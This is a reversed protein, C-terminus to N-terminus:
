GLLRVQIINLTIVTLFALAGCIILAIIVPGVLHREWRAQIEAIPDALTETMYDEKLPLDWFRPHYGANEYNAANVNEWAGSAVEVRAWWQDVGDREEYFRWLGRPM